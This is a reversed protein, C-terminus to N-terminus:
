AALERPREVLTVPMTRRENGRVVFLSVVDGPRHHRLALVLEAMGAVPAGDVAVIVDAARLGAKAAPSSDVVHAVLAGTGDDAGGLAEADQGDLGIWAHTVHGRVILEDAVSRAADIPIAYGLGNAPDSLPIATTIGIVLGSADLLPGGSADPLVPADTQIMDLLPLGDARASIRRHLASIIGATASPGLAMAPQGVRLAIASGLVAAPHSDGPIKLVALDTDADTGLLKAVVAKGSALVVKFTEAGAVVHENALVHGDSRFIVGSGTTTGKAGRAVIQTVAPRVKQAIDAATASSASVTQVPAPVGFQEFTSITTTDRGLAVVLGGALVAGIM